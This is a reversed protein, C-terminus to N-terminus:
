REGAPLRAEVRARTEGAPLAIPGLAIYATRVAEWAGARNAADRDAERAFRAKWTGVEYRGTTMPSIELRGDGDTTRLLRWPGHVLQVDRYAVPEGSGTLLRLELTATSFRVPHSSGKGPEVRVAPAVPMFSGSIEVQVTWEAPLLEVEFRGQADTTLIGRGPVGISSGQWLSRGMPLNVRGVHPKGDVLVTGHVTGAHWPSLDIEVRRTEGASLDNVDHIPLRAETAVSATSTTAFSPLHFHLWLRWSGAAMGEVAFSGDAGPRFRSAPDRGVAVEERAKDTCSLWFREARESRTGARVLYADLQDLGHLRGEIRAAASVRVELEPADDRITIGSRLLAV